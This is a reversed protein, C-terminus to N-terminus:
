LAWDETKQATNKTFMQLKEGRKKKQDNGKTKISKHTKIIIIIFM